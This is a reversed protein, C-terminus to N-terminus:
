KAGRERKIKQMELLCGVLGSYASSVSWNSSLYGHKLFIIFRSLEILNTHCTMNQPTNREKINTGARMGALDM